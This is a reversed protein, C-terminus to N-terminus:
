GNSYEADCLVCFSMCLVTSLNWYSHFLFDESILFIRYIRSFAVNYYENLVLRLIGIIDHYRGLGLTGGNFDNFDNM